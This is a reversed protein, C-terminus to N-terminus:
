SISTEYRDGCFGMHAHADILEVEVIWQILLFIGLDIHYRKGMFEDLFM